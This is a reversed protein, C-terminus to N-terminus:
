HKINNCFVSLVSLVKDESIPKSIHENMGAEFAKMRDETFANATMAVIPINKADERDLSRIVKAATYGDMEPMMIDMLIADYAGSSSDKFARVVEEGNWAKTVNAGLDQLIFEAIEMNLENDEALLINMGTIDAEKNKHKELTIMDSTAIKFPITVIFTSGEGKVSSVEITGNMNDVLKKTISMGLGIRGFAVKEGIQELSFPEFVHKQFEESMGIGTDHCIFQIIATGEEKSPLEKCILEIEGYDKNYKAANSMINMMIRKVHVPSGIVNWHTVGKGGCIVKINREQALKEIVEFVEEATEYLNFPREELIINGSELKNMDLVENVLELLLEASEKIKKRCEGQKKLDDSYHEAIDLMGCIGNLPTRIDHSMRQLFETKTANARQAEYVAENLQRNREEREKVIDDIHRSGLIVKFGSDTMVRVIRTEMYTKDEGKKICFQLSIEQHEKLYEMLYDRDLKQVYEAASEMLNKTNKFLLVVDSFKAKMGVKVKPNSDKIVQLEDALLDCFYVVEYDNCLTTLIAERYSAQKYSENLYAVEEELRKQELAKRVQENEEKVLEDINKFALLAFDPNQEDIRRLDVAFHCQSAKNPKSKYRYTFHATESLKNHLFRPEMVKIFEERCEDAVYAKAYKEVESIYDLKKRPENDGLQEYANSISDLKLLELTNDRFDLSYVSTYERCLVDLFLRERKIDDTLDTYQNQMIEKEM